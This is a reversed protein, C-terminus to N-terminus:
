RLTADELLENDGARDVAPSIQPGTLMRGGVDIAESDLRVGDWAQELSDMHESWVTKLNSQGTRVGRDHRIRGILLVATISAQVISM